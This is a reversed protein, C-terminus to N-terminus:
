KKFMATSTKWIWEAQDPSFSKEKDFHKKIGKAMKLIDNGKDGKELAGIIAKLSGLANAVHRAHAPTAEFIINKDKIAIGSMDRKKLEKNINKIGQKVDDKADKNWPTDEVWAALDALEDDDIKFKGMKANSWMKRMGSSEMKPEGKFNVITGSKNVTVGSIGYRKEIEMRAQGVSKGGKQIKEFDKQIQNLTPGSVRESLVKMIKGAATLSGADSRYIPDLKASLKKDVKKGTSKVLATIASLKNGADWDKGFKDLAKDSFVDKLDKEELEYLPASELEVTEDFDSFEDKIDRAMEKHTKPDTADHYTQSIGIRDTESTNPGIFLAYAVEQDIPFYSFLIYLELGADTFAPYGWSENNDSYRWNGVFDPRAFDIKAKKLAIEFKKKADKAKKSAAAENFLTSEFLEAPNKM